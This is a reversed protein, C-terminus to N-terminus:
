FSFYRNKNVVIFWSRTRGPQAYSSAPLRVERSSGSRSNNTSGQDLLAYTKVFNGGFSARVKVPVISLMVDNTKNESFGVFACEASESSAPKKDSTPPPPPPHLLTTHKKNCNEKRCCDTRSCRDARHGPQLCAFCLKKQIVFKYRDQYSLNRFRKCHNLYHPALCMLCSKTLDTNSKVASAFFLKQNNVRKKVSVGFVPTSLERAQKRVFYVIDEISINKKAEYMINNAVARWKHQIPVPLRNIILKDYFM